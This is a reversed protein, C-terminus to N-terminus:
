EVINLSLIYCKMNYSVVTSGNVITEDISRYRAKPRFNDTRISFTAQVSVKHLTM